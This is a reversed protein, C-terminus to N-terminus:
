GLLGLDHARAVAQTRNSVALQEFVHSVHRKVADVTIFLGEAIERNLHGAALLILIEHERATLPRVMGPAAVAGRRAPAVIPMGHLEFAATLQALFEPRRFGRRGVLLERLMAAM